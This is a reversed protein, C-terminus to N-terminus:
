IRDNQLRLQMLFGDIYSDWAAFSIGLERQIKSNDLVARTPRRAKHSLDSSKIPVVDKAGCKLDFGLEQARSLLCVAFDFWSAEGTPVLNYLTNLRLKDSFDKATIFQFVTKQM